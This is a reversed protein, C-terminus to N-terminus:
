IGNWRTFDNFSIIETGHIERQISSAFFDPANSNELSKSDKAELSCLLALDNSNPTCQGEGRRGSEKRGKREKMGKLNCSYKM